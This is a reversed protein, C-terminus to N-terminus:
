KSLWMTAARPVQFNYAVAGVEKRFANLTPIYYGTGVYARDQLLTLVKTYIEKRKAPDVTAGGETVLQDIEADSFKGNQGAAGTKVRRQLIDPDVLTEFSDRAFSFQFKGDNIIGIHVTREARLLKARIGNAEFMQQAFQAITNEPERDIVRLEVDIGNPYGAEALLAKVKAPDYTYKTIKDDYGMSATTFFPYYFPVGLGFSMAKSMGERDIGYLVAQRLKVNDFPAATANFWLQFYCNPYWPVEDIALNADAKIAAVDKPAVSELLHVGGTRLDQLGVTPDPQFRSVFGDLYPLPKGDAGKEFYDPNKELILRDDAIWQKFKFPGTGIPNRALEDAGGKDFAAKSAIQIQIGNAWALTPIFGPSPTKLKIRLTTKDPADISDIVQLQSRRTSKPDDRAREFNWKAVSADFPSGDHFLIGQKLKFTVTTPDPQEWSEALDGVVKHEGTKRDVLDFRVLGSYIADYGPNLFSATLHPDMTTYTTFTSHTLTGGRKIDAAPQAAAAPKAAETPKAAAAAQAAATPATTAAPPAAPAAPKAAETPKAAEAPKAPASTPAQAPASPACAALLSIAALGVSTGLFRRRTVHRRQRTM